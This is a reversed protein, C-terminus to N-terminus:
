IELQLLQLFNQFVGYNMQSDSVERHRNGSIKEEIVLNSWDIQDEWPTWRAVRGKEGSVFMLAYYCDESHSMVDELGRGNGNKDDPDPLRINGSFTYLFQYM